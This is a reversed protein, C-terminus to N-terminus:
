RICSSTTAAAGTTETCTQSDVNQESVDACDGLIIEHTNKRGKTVDFGAQEDTYMPKQLDSLTSQKKCQQASVGIAIQRDQLQRQQISEIQQRVCRASLLKNCVLMNGDDNQVSSSGLKKCPKDQM